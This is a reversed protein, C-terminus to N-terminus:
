ESYNITAGKWFIRLGVDPDLNNIEDVESINPVFYSLATVLVVRFNILKWFCCTLLAKNRM